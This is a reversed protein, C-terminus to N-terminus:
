IRGLEFVKLLIAVGCMVMIFYNFKSGTAEAYEWNAIFCVLLIMVWIVNVM